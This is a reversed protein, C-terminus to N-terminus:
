PFAIVASPGVGTGELEKKALAAWCSNVNVSNVKYKAATKCAAVIDAAQANQTLWALDFHKAFQDVTMM